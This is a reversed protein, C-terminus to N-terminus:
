SKESKLLNGDFTFIETPTIWEENSTFFDITIPNFKTYLINLTEDYSLKKETKELISIKRNPVVNGQSDRNIKVNFYDNVFLDDPIDRKNFSYVSLFDLGSGDPFEKNEYGFVITQKNKSLIQLQIIDPYEDPQGWVINNCCDNSTYILKNNSNLMIDYSGDIINSYIDPFLLIEDTISNLVLNQLDFLMSYRDQFTKSKLNEKYYLLDIISYELTNDEENMKLYGNLVINEQFKNSITSEISRMNNNIYFNGEPSLVLYFNYSIKPAKRVTYVEKTMKIVSSYTLPENNIITTLRNFIDANEQVFRENLESTFNKILDGKSDLIMDEKRLNSYICNLLQERTFSNLGPFYRSDRMFDTGKVKVVRGDSTRVNYENSKKSLKKIVTVEEFNGDIKVMATGGISNSGPILIGSGLDETETINYMKEQEKSNPFGTLLYQKMRKISDKTKTECCPFWLGNEDQVGEPKLYQYNPDPCTGKWSYPDPRMGEKYNGSGSDRTRTLRCIKGSPAYGTVTNFNTGSEKVDLLSKKILIEKNENFIRNIVTVVNNFMQSNIPTKGQICVGRLMQKDSCSSLTMMVTGFKNIIATLKVGPAPNSVFKIYEKSMVQNRTLRGLSYEWDIIRIGDLNIIKDGSSTTEVTTYKGDIVDGSSNFPSILTDFEEFNIQKSKDLSTITFQGSISHVYSFQKTIVYKDFNGDSSLNFNEMNIGSTNNIRRILENTLLDLDEKNDPVNILNILGNKSLRISTKVANREYSIILNNLFQTTTTKSALKKPGRKKYIGFFSINTLINPFNEIDVIGNEVLVEDPILLISNLDEQTLTKSSIKDKIYEYDGKYNINKLIYTSVAELTLYLSDQEPFECTTSHDEPGISGCFSCYLNKEIPGIPPRNYVENLVETGIIKKESLSLKYFGTEGEDLEFQTKISNLDFIENNKDFKNIFMNIGNVKAM